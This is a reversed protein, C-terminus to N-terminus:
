ELNDAILILRENIRDIYFSLERVDFSGYNYGELQSDIFKATQTLGDYTYKGKEVADELSARIDKLFHMLNIYDIQMKRLGQIDDKLNAKKEWNEETIM